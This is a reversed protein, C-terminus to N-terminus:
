GNLPTYSSSWLVSRCTLRHASNLAFQLAGCALQPASISPSILVFSLNDNEYEGHPLSRHQVNRPPQRSHSCTSLRFSPLSSAFVPPFMFIPPGSSQPHLFDGKGVGVWCGVGSVVVWRPSVVHALAKVWPVVVTHCFCSLTPAQLTVKKQKRTGKIENYDSATCFNRSTPSSM